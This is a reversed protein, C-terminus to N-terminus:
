RKYGEHIAVIGGTLNHYSVQTFGQQIMMQALTNQDPHKRISEVLYRYSQADKAIWQGLKPLLQFSYCDYLKNLWSQAPKSFELILLKGGPKLVRLMSQLAQEKDTVNRLGFSITVCDFSNDALALTQADTQLYAINGALGNNILKNRGTTLMNANMDTLLVFGQHGVRRAFDQALDGSGGAVDLVYHGPKVGSLSITAKKWLRHLGMSMLDNMLDYRPAVSDFVKQVLQPKQHREVSQYGFHTKDTEEPM